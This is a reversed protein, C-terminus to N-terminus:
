GCSMKAASFLWFTRVGAPEISVLPRLDEHADIAGEVLQLLDAVGITACPRVSFSDSTAV